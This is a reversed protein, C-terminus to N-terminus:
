NKKSLNLKGLVSFAPHGDRKEDASAFEIELKSLIQSVEDVHLCTGNEGCTPYFPEALAIVEHVYDSADLTEGIVPTMSLNDAGFDVAQNGHVSQSKRHEDQEEFLIERITRDIPLLFDWGCTSCVGSLTTTANGRMEYANGIPRITFEVQYPRSEILDKLAENLEGSERNFTYSRGDAPIESLRIKM